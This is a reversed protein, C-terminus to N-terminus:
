LSCLLSFLLVVPTRNMFSKLNICAAVDHPIQLFLRIGFISFCLKYKMPFVGGMLQNINNLSVTTFDHLDLTIFM